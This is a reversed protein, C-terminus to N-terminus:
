VRASPPASGTRAGEWAKLTAETLEGVQVSPSHKVDNELMALTALPTHNLVEMM